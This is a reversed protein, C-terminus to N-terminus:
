EGPVSEAAAMKAPFMSPRTGFRTAAVAGAGLLAVLSPFVWGICALLGLANVVLTMLFTGLAASAPLPWERNFAAVLRAGVETGIAVWGYVVTASFVLPVLVLLPVTLLLTVILVSFLALAVIVAIFLIYVLLGSGLSMWPQAIAADAVRRTQSPLFLAVLAALGGLAFASGLIGFLNGLM